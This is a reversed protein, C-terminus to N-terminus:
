EWAVICAANALAKAPAGTGATSASGCAQPAPAFPLCRRCPLRSSCVADRIRPIHVGHLGSQLAVPGMVASILGVDNQFDVPKRSRAASPRAITSSANWSSGPSAADDCAMRPSVPKGGGGGAVRGGIPAFPPNRRCKGEARRFSLEVPRRPGEPDTEHRFTWERNANRRTLGAESCISRARARLAKASASARRAGFCMLM